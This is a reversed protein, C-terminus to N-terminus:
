LSWQGCCLFGSLAWFPFQLDEDCFGLPPLHYREPFLAWTGCFLFVTPLIFPSPFAGFVGYWVDHLFFPIHTNIIMLWVGLISLFGSALKQQASIQLTVKSLIRSTGLSLILCPFQGCKERFFRFFSYFLYPPKGLWLSLQSTGCRWVFGESILTKTQFPKM